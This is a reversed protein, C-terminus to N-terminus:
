FHCRGALGQHRCCLPLPAGLRCRGLCLQGVRAAADHCPPGGAGRECRTLWWRASPTARMGITPAAQAVESSACSGAISGFGIKHQDRPQEARRRQPRCLDTGQAINGIDRDGIMRTVGAYGLKGCCDQGRCRWAKRQRSKRHSSVDGVLDDTLGAIAHHPQDQEIGTCAGVRGFSALPAQLEHTQGLPFSRGTRLPLQQGHENVRLPQRVFGQDGANMCIAISVPTSAKLRCCVAMVRGSLRGRRACIRQGVRTSTPRWSTKVGGARACSIAAPMAPALSSIMASHPCREVGGQLPRLRDVLRHAGPEAALQGGTRQAAQQEAHRPM